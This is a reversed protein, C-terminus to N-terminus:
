TLLRAETAVQTLVDWVAEASKDWSFLRGRELSKQGLAERLTSDLTLQTFAAEIENVDYPNVLIGAEGVVEPIATLNGAIIPVGCKMAEVLPIGFGEFYPVYVLAAAAATVQILEQQRLRGTFHVAAKCPASAEWQFNKNKWLNEGVIVLDFPETTKAQYSSYAQLLRQINKRPHLSGVFLFYNKGQTYQAKVQQKEVKSSVVFQDSASNWIATIQSPAIQYSEILDQKSYNSVTIIHKAKRAFKPFFHNLYRSATRPLDSPFHYFNIDHIVAIQPVNTRLSLYGDPSFFLDIHHKKLAKTVAYNFWYYFLIPHRAAPKLVIPTVNTGFVFQQDYPRDFFFVFEHEPHNEVLRKCIEYTYWGFGELKNPLLFRTNVAIRM